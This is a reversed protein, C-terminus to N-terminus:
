REIRLTQLEAVQRDATLVSRTTSLRSESGPAQLSLCGDALHPHEVPDVNKNHADRKVAVGGRM